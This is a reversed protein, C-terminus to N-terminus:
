SRDYFNSKIYFSYNKIVTGVWKDYWIMMNFIKSARLFYSVERKFIKIYVAMDYIM